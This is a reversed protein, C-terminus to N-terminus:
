FGTFQDYLMGGLYEGGLGFGGAGVILGIAAGPFGGLTAGVGAGIRGGLLSGTWGGAVEAVTRGPDDSIAIRIGDVVATSILLIRGAGRAVAGARNWGPNSM